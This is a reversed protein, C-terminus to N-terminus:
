SRRNETFLKKMESSMEALRSDYWDNIYVSYYRLRARTVPDRSDKDLIVLSLDNLPLSASLYHDLVRDIARVMVALDVLLSNKPRGDIEKDQHATSHGKELAVGELVVDDLGKSRVDAMPDVCSKLMWVRITQISHTDLETRAEPHRSWEAARKVAMDPEDKFGLLYSQIEAATFQDGPVLEAFEISLDRITQTEMAGTPQNEMKRTTICSASASELEIFPKYILSFISGISSKDAYGFYFTKDVRSPRTLAPDLKDPHNTTM